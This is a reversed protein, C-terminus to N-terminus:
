AGREAVKLILRAAKEPGKAKQMHRSLKDLRKAM